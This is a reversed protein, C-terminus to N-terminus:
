PSVLALHSPPSEVAETMVKCRFHEGYMLPFICCLNGEMVFSKHDIHM